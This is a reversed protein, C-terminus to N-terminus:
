DSFWELIERTVDYNGHAAGPLETYQLGVRRGKLTKVLERVPAIDVSNDEDGHVVFYSPLPARKSASRTLLDVVAFGEGHRPETCGSLVVVKSFREPFLMSLRWAGYGGMSFGSLYVRKTDYPVITQLHDMCELVDEGSSGLYFDSLGRAQPALVVFGAHGYDEAAVKITRREDVGSGHLAILLPPPKVPDYNEPIHASYPQLSGDIKSRHAFRFITGKQPWTREDSGILSLLQKTEALHNELPTYSAAPSADRLFDRIWQLRIELSPLLPHQALGQSPELVKEYLAALQSGVVFISKSESFMTEGQDELTLHAQYLGSPLPPVDISPRFVVWRDDNISASLTVNALMKTGQKLAARAVIPRRHTKGFSCGLALGLTDGALLASRDFGAQCRLSDRGENLVVRAPTVRRWHTGESDPDLDAVLQVQKRTTAIQPSDLNSDQDTYTINIGWARHVFPQFPALHSWPIAVEYFVQGTDTSGAVAYEIDDLNEPPFYTGDRNVLTPRAGDEAYPFGFTVFRRTAAGQGTSGITLMFGDGYRWARQRTEISNDQAVLAVYLRDVDFLFGVRVSLDEVAHEANGVFPARGVSRFSDMEWDALDGDISPTRAVERVVVGGLSAGNYGQSLQPREVHSAEFEIAGRPSSPSACGLVAFLPWLMCIHCLSFARRDAVSNCLSVAQSFM